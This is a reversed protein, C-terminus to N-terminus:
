RVLESAQRYACHFRHKDELAKWSEEKLVESYPENARRCLTRIIEAFYRLEKIDNCILLM